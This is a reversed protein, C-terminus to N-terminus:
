KNPNKLGEVTLGDAALLETYWMGVAICLM